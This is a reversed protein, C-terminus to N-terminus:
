SGRRWTAAGFSVRGTDVDVADVERGANLWAKAQARSPDNKWWARQARASAPLGRVLGDIEDMSLTLPGDPARCLREFLPDYKAKAM